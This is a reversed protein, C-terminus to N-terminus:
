LGFALMNRESNRARRELIEVMRLSRVTGDVDIVWDSDYPDNPLHTVLGRAVLEEVSEVPALGEEVVNQVLATLRESHLAHLESNLQVTLREILVPDTEAKLQDSLFRIAVERENKRAIFAHAASAYWDPAGDKQSAHLMWMHALLVSHRSELASRLAANAGRIGPDLSPSLATWFALELRPNGTESGQLYHNAGLSFPFYEDEPFQEVAMELIHSSTTYDELVKMMLSGYSYLSRWKPDLDISARLASEFWAAQELPQELGADDGFKLVARIWIWDALQTQFGLSVWSLAEGSPVLEVFERAKEEEWRHEDALRHSVHAVSAGCAVMFGLVWAKV